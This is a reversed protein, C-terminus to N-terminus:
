EDKLEPADKKKVRDILDALSKIDDANECFIDGDHILERAIKPTVVGYEDVGKKKLRVLDTEKVGTCRIQYPFVDSIFLHPAFFEERSPAIEIPYHKLRDSIFGYSESPIRWVKDRGNFERGEIQKVLSILKPDYPFRIVVYDRQRYLTFM